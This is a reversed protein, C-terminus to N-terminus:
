VLYLIAWTVVGIGALLEWYFAADSLGAPVYLPTDHRHRLGEALLIEVWCLTLLAFVVFFITWGIFVSAYGGDLPGFHLQAYELVQAVCGALGLALSAGAAALWGREQRAAWAAYVLVAASAAFLLVIALGYRQSPDVGGPRWRHTNNLSRLYFYAFAFAAFFLITTGAIVRAGIWLNRENVEPPEALQGESAEPERTARMKPLRVM